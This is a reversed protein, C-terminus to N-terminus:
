IITIFGIYGMLKDKGLRHAKCYVKIEKGEPTEIVYSMEFNRDELVAKDWEHKVLLKNGEQLINVWGTGKIESFPRQVMVLYARNAYVCEGKNDTEFTCTNSSELLARQREHAFNVTNEIRNIADKLSKGDNTALEREICQISKNMSNLKDLVKNEGFMKRWLKKGQPLFYKTVLTLIALITAALTALLAM